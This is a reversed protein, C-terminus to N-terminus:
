GSSSDLVNNTFIINVMDALIKDGIHEQWRAKLYNIDADINGKISLIARRHVRFYICARLEINFHSIPSCIRYLILIGVGQRWHFGYQEDVPPAQFWPMYHVLVLPQKEQRAAPTRVQLQKYAAEFQKAYDEPAKKKQAL